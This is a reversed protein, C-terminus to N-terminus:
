RYHSNSCNTIVCLV